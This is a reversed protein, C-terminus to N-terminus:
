HVNKDMVDAFYKENGAEDVEGLIYIDPKNFRKVVTMSGEAVLDDRWRRITRESVGFLDALTEVAWCAALKHQKIFYHYYINYIDKSHENKWVSNRFFIYLMTKYSIKM